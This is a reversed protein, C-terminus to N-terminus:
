KRCFVVYVVEGVGEDSTREIHTVYGGPVVGVIGGRAAATYVGREATEILYLEILELL